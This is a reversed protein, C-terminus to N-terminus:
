EDLSVESIVGNINEVGGNSFTVRILSKEGSGIQYPDDIDIDEVGYCHYKVLKSTYDDSGDNLGRVITLQFKGTGEEGIQIKANDVKASM